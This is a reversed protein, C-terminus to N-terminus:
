QQASRHNAVRKATLVRSKATAGNHKDFNNLALGADSITLWGANAVAQVFGTVGMLRDLLAPTVGAANGDVTHQDFWRFLRM